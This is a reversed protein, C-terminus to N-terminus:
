SRSYVWDTGDNAYRTYNSTKYYAIVDSITLEFINGSNEIAKHRNYLQEGLQTKEESGEKVSNYLAIQSFVEQSSKHFGVGELTENQLTGNIYRTTNYHSILGPVNILTLVTFGISFVIGAIRPVNIHRKTSVIILVFVMALFLMFVTTFVRLPTLGQQSIYMLMKFLATCIIGLSCVSLLVSALRLHISDKWIDKACWVGAGLLILTFAAVWCMEFFGNRAYSSYSYGQPIGNVFVTAASAISNIVFVLYIAAIVYFVTKITNIPLIKAKKENVSCSSNFKDHNFGACSFSLGFFYFGFVCSSIIQGFIQDNLEFQFVDSIMAAFSADAGSLSPIIIFLVPVLIAIGILIETVIPQKNSKKFLSAVSRKVAIIPAFFCKFPHYFLGRIGELWVWKGMKSEILADCRCMTWYIAVLHAALVDTGNFISNRYILSSVSLGILICLWIRSEKTSKRGKYNAYVSVLTVYLATFICLAIGHNFISYQLNYYVCGLAVFLLAFLADKPKLDFLPQYRPLISANELVTGNVPLKSDNM